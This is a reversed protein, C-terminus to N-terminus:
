KIMEDFNSHGLYSEKFSLGKLLLMAVERETQTLNWDKFQEKLVLGLEHRASALAPPLSQPNAKSVSFLEAKLRANSQSQKWIGIILATILAFSVIAISLEMVIHVTSAGGQYDYAVDGLNGIVIIALIFVAISHYFVIHM